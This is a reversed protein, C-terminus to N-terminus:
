NAVSEIEWDTPGVFISNGVAAPRLRDREIYSILTPTHTRNWTNEM